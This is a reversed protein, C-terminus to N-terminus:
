PTQVIDLVHIAQTAQMVLAYSVREFPRFVMLVGAMENPLRVQDNKIPSYIDRTMKGQRYIDLVHGTQIGDQVGKDIVVINHQGIQSVGNLVSIINGKILKEPARPIFNLTVDTEPSAMLRDGMRIEGSSKSIILTAPDGNQLLTTDAIYSAEFGLIEKSDPSIYPEGQRYVTYLLSKPAEISRVYISDGAGAILHEGAFDIVYPANDLENQTVVKPSSLFPQIHDIPITKIAAEIDTERIRPHLKEPGFSLRPKGNVITLYIVDGPYILHPNKIQSNNEWVKPWYWPKSLFKGAIDWLTDGKVVTYKDPHAPNLKIEDANCTTFLLFSAIIGLISRFVM